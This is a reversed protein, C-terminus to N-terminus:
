QRAHYHITWFCSEVGRKKCQGLRLKKYLTLVKIRDDTLAYRNLIDASSDNSGDDICLIEINGYTQSVLSDLCKGLYKEANYVAVLISVKSTQM